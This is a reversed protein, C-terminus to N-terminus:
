NTDPSPGEILGRRILDAVVASDSLSPCAWRWDLFLWAAHKACGWGDGADAKPLTSHRSFDGILVHEDTTVRYRGMELPDSGLTDLREIRVGRSSL